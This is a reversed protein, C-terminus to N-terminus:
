VEVRRDTLNIRRGQEEDTIQGLITKDVLINKGEKVAKILEIMLEALSKLSTDKSDVESKGNTNSSKLHQTANFDLFKPSMSEILDNMVQGAEGTENRVGDLFGDVMNEGWDTIFRGEGEKAPSWFKLFGAAKKVVGSAADAVASGM